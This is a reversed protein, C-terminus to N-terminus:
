ALQRWLANRIPQLATALDIGEVSVGGSRNFVIKGGQGAMRLQMREIVYSRGGVLSSAAVDADDGKAVIRGVSGNELAVNGLQVLDVTGNLGSMQQFTEVWARVDARIDGFSAKLDAASILSNVFAHSSKPADVVELTGAVVEAQFMTRIYETRRSSTRIGFPSVLEEEIVRKEYFSATLYDSRLEELVFGDNDEDARLGQRKLGAALAGITIGWDARYWRFRKM